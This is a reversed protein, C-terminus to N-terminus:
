IGDGRRGEADHLDEPPQVLLQRLSLMEGRDVPVYNLLCKHKRQKIGKPNQLNFRFMQRIGCQGFGPQDRVGLVGAGEVVVVLLVEGLKHGEAGFDVLDQLLLLVEGLDHLEDSLHISKCTNKKQNVTLQENTLM